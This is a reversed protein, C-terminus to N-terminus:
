VKQQQQQQQLERGTWVPMGCGIVVRPGKKAQSFSALAQKRVSDLDDLKTTYNRLAEVLRSINSILNLQDQKGMQPDAMAWFYARQAMELQGMRKLALGLCTYVHWWTSAAVAEPELVGRAASMYSRVALKQQEAAEEHRGELEYLRWAEEHFEGSEIAYFALDQRYHHHSRPFDGCSPGAELVCGYCDLAQGLAAMKEANNSCVSKAQAYLLVLSNFEAVQTNPNRSLFLFM